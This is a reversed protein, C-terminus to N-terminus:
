RVAVGGARAAVRETLWAVTPCRLGHRSAARLVSGAVADLEPQRGAAIDRRMSSGLEPHARDLESMTDAPDLAAGDANAVRVTERVANELASRWRPDSRVFGLPRDSASTTLSLANLRSLKSWLVQRESDEVRTPIGAGRLIAALADLPPHLAADDAALDIRVSPSSQVIQGPAPRNSEIRIVGAAVSKAGFRDRLLELHEIGNLLPVVLGPAAHVRGLAPELGGAKTAVLLFAAPETLQATAAPRATFDAGLAVSQVTIGHEAVRLATPETAVVVVDEGARSLAAAVFGGVGGPGLVAIKSM